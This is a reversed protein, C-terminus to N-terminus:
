RAGATYLKGGYVAQRDFVDVLEVWFRDPTFTVVAFGSHHRSPQNRQYPAHPRAMCAVTFAARVGSDDTGPVTHRSNMHVHGVMVSEGYADFTAKAPNVGHRCGHTLILKRNVRYTQNEASWTINLGSLGMAVRYDLTSGSKIEGVHHQRAEHNGELYHLAPAWSRVQELIERGARYDEMLVAVDGGTLARRRHRSIPTYDLFDGGIVILAPKIEAAIQRALDFADTNLGAADEDHGMHWDTLFMMRGEQVPAHRSVTPLARASPHLAPACAPVPEITIGVEAALAAGQEMLRREDARRSIGRVQSRNVTAGGVEATVERAIGAFDRRGASLRHLTAAKQAETM